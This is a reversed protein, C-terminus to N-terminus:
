VGQENLREFAAELVTGINMWVFSRYNRPVPYDTSAPVALTLPDGNEDEGYVFLDWGRFQAVLATAPTNRYRFLLEGKTTLEGYAIENAYDISVGWRVLERM